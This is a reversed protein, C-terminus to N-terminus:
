EVGQMPACLHLEGAHIHRRVLLNRRVLVALHHRVLERPHVLVGADAASVAGRERPGGEEHLWLVASRPDELLPVVGVLDDLLGDRRAWDVADV